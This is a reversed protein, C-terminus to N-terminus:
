SLSLSNCSSLCISQKILVMIKHLSQFLFYGPKCHCGGACRKTSCTESAKPTCSAQCLDVCDVYQENETCKVKASTTGDSLLSSGSSHQSNPTKQSFQNVFILKSRFFLKKSYFMCMHSTNTVTSTINTTCTWGGRSVPCCKQLDPCDDDCHCLNVGYILQDTLEPCQGRRTRLCKNQIENIVTQIEYHQPEKVETGHEKSLALFSERNEKLNALNEQKRRLETHEWVKHYIKRDVDASRKLALRLADCAANLDATKPKLSGIIRGFHSVCWCEDTGTRCQAPRYHKGSPECQPIYVGVLNNTPLDNLVQRRRQTCVSCCKGDACIEDGFICDKDSACQRIWTSGDPCPTLQETHYKLAPVGVFDAIQISWLFWNVRFYEAARNAGFGFRSEILIASNQQTSKGSLLFWGRHM